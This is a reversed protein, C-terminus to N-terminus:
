QRLPRLPPLKIAAALRWKTNCSNELTKIWWILVRVVRSIVKAYKFDRGAGNNGTSQVENRQLNCNCHGLGVSQRECTKSPPPPYRICHTRPCSVSSCLGNSIKISGGESSSNIITTRSSAATTCCSGTTRCCCAGCNDGQHQRRGRTYAAPATQSTIKSACSLVLPM